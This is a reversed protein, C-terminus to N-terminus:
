GQLELKQSCARQSTNYATSTHIASLAYYCTNDPFHSHKGGTALSSNHIIRAHPSTSHPICVKMFTNFYQILTDSVPETTMSNTTSCHSCNGPEGPPGVPGVEGQQGEIGQEGQISLLSFTGPTECLLITKPDAELGQM